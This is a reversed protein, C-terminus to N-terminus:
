ITTKKCVIASPKSSREIMGIAILLHVLLEFKMGSPCAHEMQGNSGSDRTGCFCSRRYEKIKNSLWDSNGGLPENSVDQDVVPNLILDYIASYKDKASYVLPLQPYEGENVGGATEADSEEQHM